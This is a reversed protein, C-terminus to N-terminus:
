MRLGETCNKCIDIQKRNNLLSKRFNLAKKNNNLEKFSHQNINGSSHTADKDFCCPLVEGTNTIVSSEWLRKCKNKLKSKIQYKGSTDKKYMSYKTNKPIFKTDNEFDYIQASKLELKNVVLEKSLKKIEPIQHENFKFVLFQIVVYPTKSKLEKKWQVINKVSQIVTKLDGNKRYKEYTEQNTGDLSIILKDLGSEVTKKATESDLFHGNTSTTTFVKKEKASYEILKFIEKNLYPEGQFYLILNMLYPSLEDLIKKYLEFKIHGKFRTLEDLGTPCEPCKLNCVSTPEISISVPYAFRNSRKTVTSLLYSFYLLISNVLKKFTIKKLVNISHQM